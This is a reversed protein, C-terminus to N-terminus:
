LTKLLNLVETATPDYLLANNLHKKALIINGLSVNIKGLLLNNSYDFPYLKMLIESYKKANWFDKQYYYMTSLRFNATYHNPDIALISNYIKMLDGWSETAAIPYVYGLKAEISGPKLKMANTYYNKSKVYDTNLYNLWGLRLNIEYSNTDYINDLANIAKSYEKNYEQLYSESFAASVENQAFFPFTFLLLALIFFTNKM